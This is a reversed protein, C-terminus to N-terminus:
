ADNQELEKRLREIARVWLQRVAVLSRNLRTAIEAFSLGEVQRWLLIQRHDASLRAIAARLRAAEEAAIAQSAPDSGAAQLEGVRLISSGGQLPVERHMARKRAGGYRRNATRAVRVMITRLWAKLEDENEGRFKALGQQARLLTEQVLDSLGLKVRLEPSMERSAVHLLYRWVHQALRGQSAGCGSRAAELVVALPTEDGIRRSVSNDPPSSM